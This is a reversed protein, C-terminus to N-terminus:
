PDIQAMKAVSLRPCFIGPTIGWDELYHSFFMLVKWLSSLSSQGDCIWFLFNFGLNGFAYM